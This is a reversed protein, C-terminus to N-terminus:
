QDAKEELRRLHLDISVLHEAQVRLVVLISGLTEQMVVLDHRLNTIQATIRDIDDAM